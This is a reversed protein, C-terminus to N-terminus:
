CVLEGGHVGVGVGAGDEVADELGAAGFDLMAFADEGFGGQFITYGSGRGDAIKGSRKRAIGDIDEGFELGGRGGASDNAIGKVSGREGFRKFGGAGGSERNEGFAFKEAARQFIQAIGAFM